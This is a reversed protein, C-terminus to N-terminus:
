LYLQKTKNILIKNESFAKGYDFSAQSWENFVVQDMKAFHHITKVYSQLNNNDLDFGLRKSELGKWPTQKSIIVPCGAQWSEMIVHGFNEHQTPLIMVHQNNLITILEHNPMPGLYSVKVNNPLSNLVSQCQNWYETEDVPGIISFEVKCDKQLLSLAKLAGLLNKKIAIRSLFFLKLHGKQKIKLTVSHFIKKSLNPALVVKQKSGFHSKIEELESKDTAHWSLNKHFGFIKFAKLFLKKKLPKIALAGAGLMGRPALVVKIDYQKAVILPQIAFKLSFLSNLYVVDFHNTYLLKKLFKINQHFTDTYMIYFGDRKIWKNLSQSPLSLKENLDRNSTYIWFNFENKLHTIINNVSQIPGGSKYAPLFWDICILVDKKVKM